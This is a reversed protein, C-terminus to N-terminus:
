GRKKEDIIFLEGNLYILDGVNWILSQSCWKALVWVDKESPKVLYKGSERKEMNSCNWKYTETLLCCFQSQSLILAFVKKENDKFYEIAIYPPNFIERGFTISAYNEECWLFFNEWVKSYFADRDKDM